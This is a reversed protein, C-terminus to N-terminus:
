GGLSDNILLEEGLPQEVWAFVFPSRPFQELIQDEVDWKEVPFLVDEPCYPYPAKWGNKPTSFRTPDFDM